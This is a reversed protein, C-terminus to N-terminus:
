RSYWDEIEMQAILGRIANYPNDGDCYTTDDDLLYARYFGNELRRVAIPYVQIEAIM